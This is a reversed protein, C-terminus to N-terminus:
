TPLHKKAESQVDVLMQWFGGRRQKSLWRELGIAEPFALSASAIAETKKGSFVQVVLSVLGKTVKADSDGRIFLRGAEHRFLLWVKSLCGRVDHSRQKEEPTLGEMAEGLEMLYTVQMARDGGLASFAVALAAKVGEISLSM